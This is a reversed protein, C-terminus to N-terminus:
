PLAAGTYHALLGGSDKDLLMLRAGLCSALVCNGDHSLAMATVPAHLQDVYMCGGRVDFQRVTGDVSAAVIQARGAAYSDGKPGWPTDGFCRKESIDTHCPRM